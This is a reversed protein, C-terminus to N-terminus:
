VRSFTGADFYSVMRKFIEDSGGMRTLFLSKRLTRERGEKTVRVTDSRWEIKEVREKKGWLRAMSILILEKVEPPLPGFRDRLEYVADLLEETNRVTSFKRYFKVRVDAEEIYDEPIYADVGKVVVEPEIEKERGTLENIAEELLEFFLEYGIQNIHGHQEKGLLNGAGRIELDKLALKLGSGLHHFTALAQLRRRANTNMKKPILFYAYAKVNSRGVRGRLQHLEALGFLHAGEVILTNARPFDVGSEIISTAVLVDVKGELFEIFVDELERKRMRGHGVKIRLMPFMRELKERIKEIGSVRNYIYFVQGGRDIERRIAERIVEEDYPIVITEVEERGFPPTLILSIDYIKGLAAYLTRPIPTATMRLTDVTPYKKRLKEKDLVGFRHEEDIILLGLDKFDVDEKLLRHTGIVIDVKGEKLEALTEKLKRKDVLRSVMEVRIPFDRLRERFTRFHQLALITTPVLIVVQKGDMVAKFSARLAVETKGFGVEGAILRDMVKDSEMDRKVDEIAKRQDETEEYPFIAEMEKQWVTDPSFAYGRKIKRLAHLNILEEAYRLLDRKVREKRLQWRSSSLSSLPPEFDDSGTFRQVKSLNYVPVYVRGDRYRLVLFDQKVGLVEEAKLGEYKAIGFDVHVVYDGPNLETIDEVREGLRIKHRKVKRRLSLEGESFVAIKEDEWIFGEYLLGEMVDFPFFEVIRERRWNKDSLFVLRYGEDRLRELEDKLLEMSGSYPYHPFVNLGTDIPEEKLVRYKIDENKKNGKIPFYIDSINGLSRQTYPDFERISDVSDGWFEIRIPLLFGYPFIDLIGGRVAFEGPSEVYGVREYGMEILKSIFRDREIEKGVKFELFEVSRVEELLRGLDDESDILLLLPPKLISINREKKWHLARVKGIKLSNIEEEMKEVSEGIFITYGDGESILKLVLSKFGSPWRSDINQLSVTRRRLKEIWQNM